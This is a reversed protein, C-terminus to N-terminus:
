RHSPASRSKGGTLDGNRDRTLGNRLMQDLSVGGDADPTNSDPDTLPDDERIAPSETQSHDDRDSKKDTKGGCACLTCLLILAALIAPFRKM